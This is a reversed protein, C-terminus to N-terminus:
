VIDHSSSFMKSVVREAVGPSVPEFSASRLEDGFEEDTHQKESAGIGRVRVDDVHIPKEDPFVFSFERLHIKQFESKFDGDEPKIVMMATETGQYRMNLYVEYSISDEKIGQSILQEQVKARLNSVREELPGISSEDYRENVPEQSEHVVDALAM